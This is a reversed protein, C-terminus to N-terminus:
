KMFRSGYHPSIIRFKMKVNKIFPCAYECKMLTYNKNINEKLDSHGNEFRPFDLEAKTPVLPTHMMEFKMAKM